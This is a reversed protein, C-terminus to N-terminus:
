PWTELHESIFRWTSVCQGGWKRQKGGRPVTGNNTLHSYYQNSCMWKIFVFFLFCFFLFCFFFWLLVTLGEKKSPLYCFPMRFLVVSLIFIMRQIFHHGTCLVIHSSVNFPYWEPHACWTYFIITMTVAPLSRISLGTRNGRRVKKRYLPSVYIYINKKKNTYKHSM